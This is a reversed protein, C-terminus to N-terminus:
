CGQFSSYFIPVPFHPVHKRMHTLACVCVPINNLGLFIKGNKVVCIVGASMINLSILWGYFSLCQIM